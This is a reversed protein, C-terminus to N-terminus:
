MKNKFPTMTELLKTNMNADGVGGNHTIVQPKWVRYSQLGFAPNFFDQLCIGSSNM